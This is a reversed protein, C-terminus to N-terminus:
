GAGSSWNGRAARAGSAAAATHQAHPMEVDRFLLAAGERGLLSLTDVVEDVQANALAAIPTRLM